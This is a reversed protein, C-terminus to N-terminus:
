IKTIPIDSFEEDMTKEKGGSALPAMDSGVFEKKFQTYSEIMSQSIVTDDADISVTQTGFFTEFRKKEDEQLNKTALDYVSKRKIAIAEKAKQERAYEALERIEDPLEFTQTEKEKPKVEKQPTKTEPKHNKVFDTTDKVFNTNTSDILPFIQNVFEDITTEETAFCLLTEAITMLTRDSIKQTDGLKAKTAGLVEEKTIM